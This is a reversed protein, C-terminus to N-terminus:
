IEIVHEDKTIDIRKIPKALIGAVVTFDPVDKTVVTGAGVIACKGIKVNPM